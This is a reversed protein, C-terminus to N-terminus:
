DSVLHTRLSKEENRFERRILPHRIVLDKGTRTQALEVIVAATGGCGIPRRHVRPLCIETGKSLREAGEYSRLM